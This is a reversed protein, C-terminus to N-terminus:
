RDDRPNEAPTVLARGDMKRMRVDSLPKSNNSLFALRIAGLSPALNVELDADMAERLNNQLPGGEGLHNFLGRFNHRLGSAYPNVGVDRKLREYTGQPCMRKEMETKLFDFDIPIKKTWIQKQFERYIRGAEVSPFENGHGAFAEPNISNTEYDTRFRMVGEIEKTELNRLVLIHHDKLCLGARTAICTKSEKGFANLEECCTLTEFEYKPFGDLKFLKKGFLPPWSGERIQMKGIISKTMEENYRDAFDLVDQHTLGYKLRESLDKIGVFGLMSFSKEELTKQLEPDGDITRILRAGLIKKSLDVLAEHARINRPIIKKSMLEVISSVKDPSPCSFYDTYRPAFYRLASNKPLLSIFDSNIEDNGIGIEAGSEAVHSQHFELGSLHLNEGLSELIKRVGDRSIECKSFGLSDVRHQHDGVYKMIDAADGVDLSNRELILDKREEQQATQLLQRIPIPLPVVPPAVTAVARKLVAEVRRSM